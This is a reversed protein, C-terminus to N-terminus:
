WSACTPCVSLPFLPAAYSEIWKEGGEGEKTQRDDERRRTPRTAPKLRLLASDVSRFRHVLCFFFLCPLSPFPVQGIKLGQRCRWSRSPRSIDGIEFDAFDVRCYQNSHTGTFALAVIFSGANFIAENGISARVRVNQTPLAHGSIELRLRFNCWCDIM